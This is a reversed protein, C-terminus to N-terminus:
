LPEIKLKFVTSKENVEVRIDFEGTEKIPKEIMLFDEKTEINHQKKLAEVIENKHIASFLHGQENANGKIIVLKGKTESLNKLLKEEEIVKGLMIEKKKQELTNLAHSTAREALKKPILFNMAYGDNVEKTENKKGVRPVDKLFIVKM